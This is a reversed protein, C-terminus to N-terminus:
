FVSPPLPQWTALTSSDPEPEIPKVRFIFAEKCTLICGYRCMTDICYTFAQRIPWAQKKRILDRGWKHSRRHRGLLNQQISQTSSWKGAPKYEKPFRERSEADPSQDTDGYLMISGADPVRRHRSSSDGGSAPSSSMEPKKTSKNPDDNAWYSPKFEDVEELAQTVITHNWKDVLSRTKKEDRINLDVEGKYYPYHFKRESKRIAAKYLRGRFASKFVDFNEFQDWPKTEKPWYFSDNRTTTSSNPSLHRVEPNQHTLFELITTAFNRTAM